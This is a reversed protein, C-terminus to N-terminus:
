KGIGAFGAQKCAVLADLASWGDHTVTGWQGNICLEVRGQMPNSGAALRISGGVCAPNPVTSITSYLVVFTITCGSNGHYSSNDHYSSNGHYCNKVPNLILMIEMSKM